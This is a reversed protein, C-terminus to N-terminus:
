LYLEDPTRQRRVRCPVGHAVCSDPVDQVVVSGIGIVSDRGITIGHSIKTGLGIASNVGIHVNGGTVVGPALSSWSEMVSDHDLSCGTNLLCGRGISCGSVVIAGPMVVTGAGIVVDQCVIARPHFTTIFELQPLKIELRRTVIQRQYNDGIAVCLGSVGKKRCLEPLENEGGLIEYGFCVIGPKQFSDILGAIHFRGESSIVDAVSRAHGGAGFLFIDIKDM